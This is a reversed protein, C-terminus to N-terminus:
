AGHNLVLYFDFFKFLFSIFVQLKKCRHARSNPTIHGITVRGQLSKLTLGFTPDSGKRLVVSEVHRVPAPTASSGGSSSLPSSSSASLAYGWTPGSTSVAWLTLMMLQQAGHSTFM